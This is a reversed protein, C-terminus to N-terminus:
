TIMAEAISRLAAIFAHWDFSGRGFHLGFALHDVAAFVFLWGLLAAVGISLTLPLLIALLGCIFVVAASVFLWRSALNLEPEVSKLQMVQESRGQSEARFSPTTMVRRHNRFIPKNAKAARGFSLQVEM